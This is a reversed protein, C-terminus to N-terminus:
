PPDDVSEGDFMTFEDEVDGTSDLFTVDMRPGDVDLIVSGLTQVSHFMAPHDLSGSSLKGSCGAVTYVTGTFADAYQVYAGDGGVRGDGANVLMSDTLTTSDGYHWALQFSREYSHSHGTLVLDVSGAELLFLFNERM